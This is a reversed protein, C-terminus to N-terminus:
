IQKAYTTRTETVEFEERLKSALPSFNQVSVRWNIAWFALWWVISNKDLLQSILTKRAPSPAWLDTHLIEAKKSGFQTLLSTVSLFKNEYELKHHTYM